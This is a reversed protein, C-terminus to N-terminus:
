IDLFVTYTRMVHAPGHRFDFKIVGRNEVKRRELSANVLKQSGRSKPKVETIKTLFARFAGTEAEFHNILM